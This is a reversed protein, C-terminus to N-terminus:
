APHTRWGAGSGGDEGRPFGFGTEKGCRTNTSAPLWGPIDTTQIQVDGSLFGIRARGYEASFALVPTLALVLLLPVIRLTKM